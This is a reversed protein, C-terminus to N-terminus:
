FDGFAGGELASQGTPPHPPPVMTPIKNKKRKSAEADISLSTAAETPSPYNGSWPMETPTTPNLIVRDERAPRHAMGGVATAGSDFL